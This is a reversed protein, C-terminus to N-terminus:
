FSLKIGMKDLLVKHPYDLVDRVLKDYISMRYKFDQTDFSSYELERGIEAEMRRAVANVKKKNIKDGVILIDLRSDLNQIFVGAIIILKVKGVVKFRKIIENEKLFITNILLSQLESLYLFHRDLTWGRAKKKILIVKTGTGRKRKVIKSTSKFFGKKSILGISELNRLEKKAEHKSVHARKIIEELDYVRGENFLFLRMMRVKPEGGFIKGLIKMLILVLIHIITIRYIIAYSESGM